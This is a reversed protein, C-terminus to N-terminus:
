KRLVARLVRKVSKVIREWVGGMHSASPPIFHWEINKRLCREYIKKQNLSEVMSRLEKDAGTFNTGNDSFIKKPTGRRSEFRSLAALFSETDLSHAVELHIARTTLCTFLCGWRKVNRRGQTVFIPGFCDASITEFPANGPPLREAPLAAM